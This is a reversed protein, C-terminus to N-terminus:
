FPLDESEQMNDYEPIPIDENMQPVSDLPEIKWADLNNFYNVKGDKEWRRGKITFTVKVDQGINYNDLIECRDQLIQFKIQEVFERGSNNETTEVVFERKKFTESIQLVDYKEILKGELSFNM